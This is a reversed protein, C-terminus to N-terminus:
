GLTGDGFGDEAGEPPCSEGAEYQAKPACIYVHQDFTQTYRKDGVRYQVEVGRAAAVGPETSRLGIVLMLGDLPSGDATRRESVPVVNGEALPQTDSFEKPPFGFDALFNGGPQPIRRSRVGLLEMPGNVGVLRVKEVQAPADGKEVFLRITGLSMEENVDLIQGYHLDGALLVGDDSGGGGGGCAAAALALLLPAPLRFKM